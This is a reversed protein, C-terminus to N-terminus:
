TSVSKRPRPTMRDVAMVVVAADSSMGMAQRLVAIQQVTVAPLRLNVQKTGTAKM